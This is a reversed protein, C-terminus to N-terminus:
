VKVKVKRKRKMDKIAFMWEDGVMWALLAAMAIAVLMIVVMSIVSFWRCFEGFNGWKTDLSEVAMEVQMANLILSM